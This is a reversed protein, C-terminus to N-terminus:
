IFQLIRAFTDSEKQIAESICHYIRGSIKHWERELSLVVKLLFTSSCATKM